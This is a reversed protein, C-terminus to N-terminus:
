RVPPDARMPQAWGFKDRLVQFFSGPGETLLQFEFPARRVQVRDGTRVDLRIQGDVILPTVEEGGSDTVMLDIGQGIPVVLPRLTLTHSALPTLVLADLRPSLVPGGAAMSYATSGTPSAVIVGDGWYTALERDPRFARIAVIGANAGRSLVGDNLAWITETATGDARAVTFGLMLRAEPSLAGQEWARFAHQAQDPRYAALFGLRGLNVGLTPKQHPGMRRATALISGDGGFVIVLDARETDLPAERDLQVRVSTVQPRLWAEFREIEARAGGKREDGVILVHVM